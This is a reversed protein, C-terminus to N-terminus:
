FLLLFTWVGYHFGRRRRSARSQERAKEPRQRPSPLFKKAIAGAAAINLNEGYRELAGRFTIKVMMKDRIETRCQAMVQEEHAKLSTYNARLEGHLSEGDEKLAWKTKLNYLAPVRPLPRSPSDPWM